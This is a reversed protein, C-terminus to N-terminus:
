DTLHLSCDTHEHAAIAAIVDRSMRTMSALDAPGLVDVFFERVRAANAPACAAIAAHGDATLVIEPYRRGTTDRRVLGRKEMRTLQHSLRSKEWRTAQGLQVARMRGDPAESLNVLVEFDANSLGFERQLHAGLHREVLHHMEVFGRWAALEDATLRARKAMGRLTIPHTSM